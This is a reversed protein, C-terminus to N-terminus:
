PDPDPRPDPRPDPSPSPRSIADSRPEANGGGRRSVNPIPDAGLGGASANGRGTTGQEAGRGTGRGTGRGAGHDEAGAFTEVPEPTWSLGDAWALALAFRASRLPDAAIFAQVQADYGPYRATIRAGNRELLARKEASPFSAGARHEVFLNPVIVSQGGRRAARQCWDVEEGYGRGFVPDFRPNARWWRAGLAMCFGVGTPAIVPEDPLGAAVADIRAALGPALAVNRCILPASAIEAANSFPTVSAIAPDSLPALLRPLWGAPVFADSNLLVVPGGHGVAMLRDFAANVAGIFGRATHHTILTVDFRGAMTEAWSRLMAAMGAEDSGDDVLVVRLRAPASVPATHRPDAELPATHRAGTEPPATHRALAELAARTVAQANHVPMVIAVQEVPGPRRAGAKFGPANRQSHPELRAMDLRREGRLGTLQADLGLARKLVGRAAMDRWRAWAWLAPLHRVLRALFGPVLALQARRWAFASFPAVPFAVEARERRLIVLRAPGHPLTLTFPAYHDGPLHVLAEGGEVRAEVGGEVRAELRAEGGGQMADETADEGGVELRLGHAMAHGRLTLFGNELTIEEIWGHSGTEGDGGQARPLAGGVRSLRLHRRSYRRFVAILSRLSSLAM